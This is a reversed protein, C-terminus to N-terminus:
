PRFFRVSSQCCRFRWVLLRLLPSSREPTLGKGSRNLWVCSAADGCTMTLMHFRPRGLSSRQAFDSPRTFRSLRLVWSRVCCWNVSCRSIPAITRFTMLFRGPLPSLVSGTAHSSPVPMALSRHLVSQLQLSHLSIRSSRDSSTRGHRATATDGSSPVGVM